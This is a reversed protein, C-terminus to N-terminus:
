SNAALSATANSFSVPHSIFCPSHVSSSFHRISSSARSFYAATFQFALRYSPASSPCTLSREKKRPTKDAAPAESPWQWTEQHCSAADRCTISRDITIRTAAARQPIRTCSIAVVHSFARPGDALSPLRNSRSSKNTADRKLRQFGTAEAIDSTDIDGNMAERLRELDVKSAPPINKASMRIIKSDASSRSM